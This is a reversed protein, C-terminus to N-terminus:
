PRVVIKKWARTEHGDVYVLTVRIFYLGPAFAETKWCDGLATNFVLKDVSVGM